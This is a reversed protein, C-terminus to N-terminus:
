VGEPRHFEVHFRVPDDLVVRHATEPPIAQSAGPEVVVDMPPTTDIVFRLAGEEVVLVGWTGATVRHARLLGEPATREDWTDTTRVLRLGDPLEARDCRACDFPAGIRSARGDETEVWEATRFPPQHRVHQQHRCSLEVVWDDQDDAHFGTIRREM